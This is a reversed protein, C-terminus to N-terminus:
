SRKRYTDNTVTDTSDSTVDNSFFEKEPTKKKKNKDGKKKKKRKNQGGFIFILHESNLVTFKTLKELVM